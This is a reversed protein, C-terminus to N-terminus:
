GPGFHTAPLNRVARAETEGRHRWFGSFKNKYSYEPLSAIWEIGRAVTPDEPPVGLDALSDLAHLTTYLATNWSGNRSQSRKLPRALENKLKEDRANTIGLVASRVYLGLATESEAWPAIPDRKFFSKM